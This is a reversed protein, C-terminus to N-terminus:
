PNLVKSILKEELSYVLSVALDIEKTKIEGETNAKKAIQNLNNGIRALQRNKEQELAVIEPAPKAELKKVTIRDLSKLIMDTVTTGMARAKERIEERQNKRVRIQIFVKKIRDAPIRPM